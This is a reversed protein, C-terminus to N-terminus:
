LSSVVNPDTNLLHYGNSHMSAAEVDGDDM